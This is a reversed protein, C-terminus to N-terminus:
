FYLYLYCIYKSGLHSLGVIKWIHLWLYCNSSLCVLCVQFMGSFPNQGTFSSTPSERHFRRKPIEVSPAVFANALSSSLFKSFSSTFHWWLPSVKSCQGSSCTELVGSRMTARRLLISPGFDEDSSRRCPLHKGTLKELTAFVVIICSLSWEPPALETQLSCFLLQVVEM